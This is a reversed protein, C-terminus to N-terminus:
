LYEAVEYPARKAVPHEDDAPLQDHRIFRNDLLIRGNQHFDEFMGLLLPNAEGDVGLGQQPPPAIENIVLEPATTFHVSGEEIDEPGVFPHHLGELLHMVKLDQVVEDRFESPYVALNLVVEIM